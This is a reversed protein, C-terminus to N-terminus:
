FRCQLVNCMVSFVFCAFIEVRTGNLRLLKDYAIISYPSLAENMRGHIM